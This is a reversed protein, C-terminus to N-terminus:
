SILESMLLWKKRVKKGTVLVDNMLGIWHCALREWSYGLAPLLLMHNAELPEWWCVRVKKEWFTRPLPVRAALQMTDCALLLSSLATSLVCEFLRFVPAVCGSFSDVYVWYRACELRGVRGIAQGQQLFCASHAHVTVGARGKCPCLPPVKPTHDFLRVSTNLVLVKGAWVFTHRAPLWHWSSAESEAKAEDWRAKSALKQTGCCMRPKLPFLSVNCSLQRCGVPWRPLRHTRQLRHMGAQKSVCCKQCDRNQGLGSHM